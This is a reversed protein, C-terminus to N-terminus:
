LLAVAAESRAAKALVGSRFCIRFRTGTGWRSAPVAASSQRHLQKAEGAQQAWAMLAARVSERVKQAQADLMQQPTEEWAFRLDRVTPILRLGVSSGRRFIAAPRHIRIRRRAASIRRDARADPLEDHDVHPVERAMYGARAGARPWICKSFHAIRAARAQLFPEAGEGRRRRADLPQGRRREADGSRCRRRCASGRRHASLTADVEHRRTSFSSRRCMKLRCRRRCGTRRSGSIGPACSPRFASM